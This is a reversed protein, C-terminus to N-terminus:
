LRINFLKGFLSEVIFYIYEYISRNAFVEILGGSRHLASKSDFQELRTWEREFLMNGLCFQYNEGFYDFKRDM